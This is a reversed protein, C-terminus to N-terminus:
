APTVAPEVTFVRNLRTARLLRLERPPLGTLVVRRGAMRARRHAGVLVGLGCSDWIELAEGHVLVDGAGDDILTHLAARASPATRVDLRGRLAIDAGPRLVEIHLEQLM